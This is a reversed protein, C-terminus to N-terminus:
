FPCCYGKMLSKNKGSWTDEAKLVLNLHNVNEQRSVRELNCLKNNRKDGDIHNIEDRTNGMCDVAADELWASAIVRHVYQPTSKDPSIPMSVKLYGIGNDRAKLRKLKQGKVSQWLESGVTGLDVM